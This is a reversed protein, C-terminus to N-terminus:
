KCRYGFSTSIQECPESGLLQKGYEWLLSAPGLLFITCGLCFGILMLTIGGIGKLVNTLGGGYKIGDYLITGDNNIINLCLGIILEIFIPQLTNTHNGLISLLRFITENMDKNNIIYLMKENFLHDNDIVNINSNKLIELYINGNKGAFKSFINLGDKVFKKKADITLLKKKINGYTQTTLISTVKAKMGLAVIECDNKYIQNTAYKSNCQTNLLKDALAELRQLYHTQQPVVAVFKHQTKPPLNFNRQIPQQSSYQKNFEQIRQQVSTM